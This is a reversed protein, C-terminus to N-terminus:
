SLIKLKVKREKEDFIFGCTFGNHEASYGEPVSVIWWHRPLDTPLILSIPQLKSYGANNDLVFNLEALLPSKDSSSTGRLGTNFFLSFLGNWSKTHFAANILDEPTLNKQTTTDLYTPQLYSICYIIGESTIENWLRRSRETAFFSYDDVTTLQRSQDIEVINENVLFETIVEAMYSAESTFIDPAAARGEEITLTPLGNKTLIYSLSHNYHETDGIDELLSPVRIRNFVKILNTILNQNEDMRDLRGHPISIMNDRHIDIASTKYDPYKKEHSKKESLLYRIFLWAYKETKTKLSLFENWDGSNYCDSVLNINSDPEDSFIYRTKKEYGPINIVPIIIVKGKIDTANERLDEDLKRTALRDGLTEEGHQYGMVFTLKGPKQADYEVIDIQGVAGIVELDAQSLKAIIEPPPKVVLRKEQRLSSTDKEVTSVPQGTVGVVVDLYNNVLSKLNIKVNESTM